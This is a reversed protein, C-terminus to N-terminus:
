HALDERMIEHLEHLTEELDFLYRSTRRFAHLDGAGSCWCDVKIVWWNNSADLSIYGGEDNTLYTSLAAMFDNISMRPRPKPAVEDTGM